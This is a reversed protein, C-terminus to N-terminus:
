YNQISFGSIQLEEAIKAAESISDFKSGMERDKTYEVKLATNEEDDVADSIIVFFGMNEILYMNKKKRIRMTDILDRSFRYLLM